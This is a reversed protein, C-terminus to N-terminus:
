FKLCRFVELANILLLNIGSNYYVIRQFDLASLAHLASDRSQEFFSKLNWFIGDYRKAVINM